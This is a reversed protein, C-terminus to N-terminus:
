TVVDFGAREIAERFKESKEAHKEDMNQIQLHVSVHQEPVKVTVEANADVKKIANKVSRACGDCTMGLVKYEFSATRNKDVM